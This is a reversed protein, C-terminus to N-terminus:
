SVLRFLTVFLLYDKIACKKNCVYERPHPDCPGLDPDVSLESGTKM